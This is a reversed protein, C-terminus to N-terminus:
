NRKIAKYGNSDYFKIRIDEEKNTKVEDNVIYEKVIDCIFVNQEDTKDKVLIKSKEESNELVKYEDGESDNFMYSKVTSYYDIGVKREFNLPVGKKDTYRIDIPYDLLRYLVKQNNVFKAGLKENINKDKYQNILKAATIIGSGMAKEGKIEAKLLEWFTPQSYFAKQLNKDGSIIRAVEMPDLNSFEDEEKGVLDAEDDEKSDCAKTISVGVIGNLWIKGTKDGSRVDLKLGFSNGDDTTKVISKNLNFLDDGEKLSFSFSDWTNLSTISKNDTIELDIINNSRGICCFIVETNSFALKLGKNLTVSDLIIGLNNNIEDYTEDGDGAADNKDQLKEASPSVPDVTDVVSGNRKVEINTIDKVNINSWSKPDDLKDSEKTKHVRRLDLDDGELSTYTLLYRYNINTSGKDINDMIIQGSTINMVEFNIQSGKWTITVTDGVEISNKVMVDFPTELLIKQLREYQSETIIIKNNM